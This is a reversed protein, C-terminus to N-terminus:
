EQVGSSDLLDGREEQREQVVRAELHRDPAVDSVAPDEVPKPREVTTAVAQTPVTQELRVKYIPEPMTISAQDFAEKVRRIAESRAKGYDSQRQDVWGIMTLNVTSDGLTEILCSPPPSPMVGPSSALTKVALTQAEPIAQETDIGVTFTFRREPNKTFNLITAKFVTANPIRLHNGDLTLLITARSTLRVIKGQRGDIEVLDNPAFPQRLSLLISALSNEALDKFAFGIAVGLVGATGLVAGVLATAELLELAVLFGAGIVLLQAVHRLLDTVFVNKSIKGYLWDWRAVRRGLAMFGLVVLIAIGFLPLFSVFAAGKQYLKALAPSIREKLDSKVTLGNDVTVVDNVKEALAAAQQVSEFSGVEGRLVAVGGRVELRVDQLGPVQRFIDRLRGTAAQDQQDLVDSASPTVSPLPTFSSSPSPTATPVQAQCALCLCLLLGFVSFLFRM